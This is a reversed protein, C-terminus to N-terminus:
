NYSPYRRGCAWIWHHYNHSWVWCDPPLVEASKNNNNDFTSVIGHRHEICDPDKSPCGQVVTATAPDKKALTHKGAKVPPDNVARSGGGDRCQQIPCHEVVGGSVLHQVTPAHVGAGGNKGGGAAGSKGAGAGGSGADAPALNGFIVAAAIAAASIATM